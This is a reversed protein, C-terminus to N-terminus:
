TGSEGRRGATWVLKGAGRVVTAGTGALLAGLTRGGARLRADLDALSELAPRHHRRWWERRSARMPTTGIELEGLVVEGAARVHDVTITFDRHHVEVALSPHPLAGPA